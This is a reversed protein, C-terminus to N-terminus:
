SGRSSPRADNPSVSGGHGVSFEGRSLVPAIQRGSADNEQGKSDFNAQPSHRLGVQAVYESVFSLVALGFVGVGVLIAVLSRRKLPLSALNSRSWRGTGGTTAPKSTFQVKETATM